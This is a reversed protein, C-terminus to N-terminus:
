TFGALLCRDAEEIGRALSDTSMADDEEFPNATAAVATGGAAPTGAVATGGAAPTGSTTTTAGAAPSARDAPTSTNPSAGNSSCAALGLVSFAVASSAGIRLLGRHTLRRGDM